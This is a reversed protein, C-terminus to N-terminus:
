LIAVFLLFHMGRRPPLPHLDHRDGFPDAPAYPDSPEPLLERRRREYVDLDPDSNTGIQEVSPRPGGGLIEQRRREYIEDVRSELHGDLKPQKAGAGHPM